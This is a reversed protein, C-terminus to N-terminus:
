KNKGENMRGFLNAAFYFAAVALALNQLQMAIIIKHLGDAMEPSVFYIVVLFIVALLYTFMIMWALVRRTISRTTSENQTDRIAQLTKAFNEAHSIAKEQDTYQQEDIWNGVGKAVTMINDQKKSASSDGGFLFGGLSIVGQILWGM